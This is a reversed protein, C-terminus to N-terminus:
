SPPSWDEHNYVLGRSRQAMERAATLQKKKKKKKLHSDESFINMNQVACRKFEQIIEYLDPRNGSCITDETSHESPTGPWGSRTCIVCETFVHDDPGASNNTEQQAPSQKWLLEEGGQTAFLAEM